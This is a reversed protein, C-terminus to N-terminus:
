LNQQPIIKNPKKLSPPLILNNRKGISNFGLIIQFMKREGKKAKVGLGVYEM